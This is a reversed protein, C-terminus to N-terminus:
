SPPAPSCMSPAAAASRPRLSTAPPRTISTSRGTGTGVGGFAVSPANLTGPAAAPNGAGAGINLTGISGANAAITLVPAIVNGGDTITLTGTGARGINIGAIDSWLSGAGTVTVTGLSGAFNGVNTVLPTIDIVRGGNAITLTGTGFSGVNLGGSPGNVWSSGPGTVMVTGTSGASLGISGGASSATSGDQASGGNQIILTGTGLGGVVLDNVNTWSAGPGTVTVTGVGGPLNGITGFQDALTGGAQITLMGTGNAGITLNNAIQARARLWRRM